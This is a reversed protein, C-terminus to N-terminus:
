PDDSAYVVPLGGYRLYRELQFNPIEHRVLPFLHAIWARGALLNAHGYKLKRASSGTLLFQWKKGEILRHVEDLLHPLKQVEDIVIIPKKKKNRHALESEIIAEIEWPARSLRLYLESHLLNLLIARDGLQHHILYSKGTARPGLLFFSKNELLGTLNLIRQYPKM